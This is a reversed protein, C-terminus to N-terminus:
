CKSWRSVSDRPRGEPQAGVRRAVMLSTPAKHALRLWGRSAPGQINLREIEFGSDILVARLEVVNVPHYHNTLDPYGAGSYYAASRAVAQAQARADKYIPSDVAVMLGHPRVVRAAEAVADAVPAYHLSAAYLVADVTANRLPLKRMDARVALPAAPAPVELLDFAIVDADGLHRAAWGGGSGIDAVIPRASSTWERALMTAAESVSELRGKWLQTRGGEPDERGSSDAWGERTRLARYQAAFRDAEPRSDDDLLDLQGSSGIM